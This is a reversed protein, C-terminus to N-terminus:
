NLFALDQPDPTRWLDALGEDLLEQNLLKGKLAIKQTDGCGPIYFVDVLYRDYIDTSYTKIVVQRCDKLRKLVFDRARKGEPTDIKPTNIRRLRLKKKAVVTAGVRILVTLTDGDVVKVVSAAYTFLLSGAPFNKPDIKKLDFGKATENVLVVDAPKLGMAAANLDTRRYLRFGFDLWLRKHDDENFGLNNERSDIVRYTNLIGRKAALRIIKQNESAQGSAPGPLARLSGDQASLTKVQDKILIDKLEEVKWGKAVAKSLYADREKKDKVASLTVYHTWTLEATLQRIPFALYVQRMNRLNRVSFGKRNMQTLDHSIDELLHDGYGARLKGSQETQVIRRGIQWYAKKLIEDVAAQLNMAAKDYIGAIDLLLAQYTNKAIQKSPM